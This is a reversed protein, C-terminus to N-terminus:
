EALKGCHKQVLAIVVSSPAHDPYKRMADEIEQQRQKEGNGKFYWDAICDGQSQNRQAVAHGVVEFAGAFWWARQSDSYQLFESNKPPAAYAQICPVTVTLATVAFLRLTASIKTKKM